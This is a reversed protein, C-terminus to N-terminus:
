LKPVRVLWPTLRANVRRLFLAPFGTPLEKGNWQDQFASTSIENACICEIMHTYQVMLHTVKGDEGIEVTVISDIIQRSKARASSTLYSFCEVKKTGLFRVTYEQQQSYVLRNPSHTSSM